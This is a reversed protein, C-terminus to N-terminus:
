NHLPSKLVMYHTANFCIADVRTIGIMSVEFEKFYASYHSIYYQFPRTENWVVCICDHTPLGDKVNIFEM